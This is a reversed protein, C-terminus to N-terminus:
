ATAVELPQKVADYQSIGWVIAYLCWVFHYSYEKGSPFECLDFQFKEGSPLECTFDRVAMHVEYKDECKFIDEKISAILHAKDAEDFDYNDLTGMVQEQLVDKDWVMANDSGGHVGGRIKEAWYQPNIRLGDDRFFEFMDELRSFTWCGMDGSITLAGPWTVIELWQNTTRPKAFILHRYLGNDLEILMEHNAVDKLFDDKNPQRRM